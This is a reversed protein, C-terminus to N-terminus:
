RQLCRVLMPLTAGLDSQMSVVRHCKDIWSSCQAAIHSCILSVTSINTIDCWCRHHRVMTPSCQSVVIANTRGPRVGHLLTRVPQHHQVLTLHIKVSRHCKDAWSPWKASVDASQVLMLSMVGVNTIDCWPWLHWVLMPSTMCVNCIMAHIYSIDCSCQLYQMFMLFMACVDSIDCSCQLCPAFMPFMVCFDSVHCLCQFWKVFMLSMACVNSVNCFCRFCRFCWMFMPSMVFMPFM